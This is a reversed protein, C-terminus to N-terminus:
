SQIRVSLNVSTGTGDTVFPQGERADRESNVINHVSHRDALVPSRESLPVSRRAKRFADTLEAPTVREGGRFYMPSGDRWQAFSKVAVKAVVVAEAWGEAVAMAVVVTVAAASTTASGSALIWFRTDITEPYVNSKLIM